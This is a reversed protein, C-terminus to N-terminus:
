YETGDAATLTLDGGSAVGGGNGPALPPLADDSYCMAEGRRTPENTTHRSLGCPFDRVGRGGRGRSPSPSSLILLADPSGVALVSATPEGSARSFKKGRERALSLPDPPS